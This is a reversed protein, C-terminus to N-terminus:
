EDGHEKRYALTLAEYKPLLAEITPLDVADSKHLDSWQIGPCRKKAIHRAVARHPGTGITEFGGDKPAVILSLGGKTEVEFIDKGEETKGVKRPKQKLQSPELNM